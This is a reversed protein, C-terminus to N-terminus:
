EETSPTASLSFSVPCYQKLKEALDERSIKKLREILYNVNDTTILRRDFLLEWIANLPTSPDKTIMDIYRRPIDDSGILFSLQKRENDTLHRDIELLLSRLRFNSSEM